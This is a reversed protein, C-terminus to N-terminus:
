QHVHHSGGMLLLVQRDDLQAFQGYLNSLEGLGHRVYALCGGTWVTRHLIVLGGTQLQPEQVHIVVLQHKVHCYQQWPVMRYEHTLKGELERSM